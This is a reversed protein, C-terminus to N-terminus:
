CRYHRCIDKFIAYFVEDYNMRLMKLITVVEQRSPIKKYDECEKLTRTKIGFLKSASELSLGKDVRLRKLTIRM